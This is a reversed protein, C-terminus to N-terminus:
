CKYVTTPDNWLGSITTIPHLNRKRKSRREGEALISLGAESEAPKPVNNQSTAPLSASSRPAELHVQAILGILVAGILTFYKNHRGVRAQPVERDSM